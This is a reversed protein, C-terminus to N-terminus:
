PVRFAAYRVNKQLVNEAHGCASCKYAYIPM